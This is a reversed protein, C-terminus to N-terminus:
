VVIMNSSTDDANACNDVTASAIVAPVEGALGLEDGREDASLFIDALDEAKGNRITASSFVSGSLDNRLM